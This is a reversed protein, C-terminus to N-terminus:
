DAGWIMDESLALAALDPARLQREVDWSLYFEDLQPPPVQTTSLLGHVQGRHHIQHQILHLFTRDFRDLEVSLARPLKVPRAALDEDPHACLAILREDSERQAAILATIDHYPTLDDFIARGICDGELASVYYWDVVLIHNLAALISGFFGGRDAALAEASLQACAKGLRHNAWMNNYAQVSFLSSM